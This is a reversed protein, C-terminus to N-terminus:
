KMTEVLPKSKLSIRYVKKNQNVQSVRCLLLCKQIYKFKLFASSIGKLILGVSHDGLWLLTSWILIMDKLCITPDQKIKGLELVIRSFRCILKSYPASSITSACFQFIHSVTHLIVPMLTSTLTLSSFSDIFSNITPRFGKLGEWRKRWLTAVM